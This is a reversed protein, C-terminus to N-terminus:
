EQERRLSEACEECIVTGPNEIQRVSDILDGCLECCDASDLWHEELEVGLKEYDIM